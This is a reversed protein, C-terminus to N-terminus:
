WQATTRTSGTCRGTASSGCLEGDFGLGDPEIGPTVPIARAYAGSAVDHVDIQTTRAVFLEDGVLELGSINDAGLDFWKQEVGALDYVAIGDQFGVFLWTGDTALANALRNPVQFSSMYTMDDDLTYVSSTAPSAVFHEAQAVRPM